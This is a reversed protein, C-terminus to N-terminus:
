RYVTSKAVEHGLEHELAAKIAEATGVQGASSTQEFGQLLRQEDELKLYACQRQGRGPTEVGAVGRQRYASLLNHVTQASVGCRSALVAAPQPEVVAQRIRM